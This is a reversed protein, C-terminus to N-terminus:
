TILRLLTEATATSASPVHPAVVTGLSATIVALKVNFRLLAGTKVLAPLVVNEVVPALEKVTAAVPFGTGVSDLPARGLPTSNM